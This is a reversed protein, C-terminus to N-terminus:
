ACAGGGCGASAAGCGVSFSGRMFAHAPGCLEDCVITYEGPESLSMRLTNTYGPMAQVQGVLHGDENYIAFGHTVDASQVAFEVPADNPICDTDVAFNFQRAMVAVQTAEGPLQASRMFGYPLWTVSVAFVVIGFVLLGIFWGRRLRGAREYIGDWSEERADRAVIVFVAVLCGAMLLFAIGIMWQVPM